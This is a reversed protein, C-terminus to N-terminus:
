KQLQVSHIKKLSGHNNKLLSHQIMEAALIRNMSNKMNLEEKKEWREVTM